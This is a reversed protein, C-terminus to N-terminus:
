SARDDVEQEVGTGARDGKAVVLRDQTWSDTERKCKPENIDCKLNWM